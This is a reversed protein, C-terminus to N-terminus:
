KSPNFSVRNRGAKKSRYLLEDAEKILAETGWGTQFQAVGISISVKAKLFEKAAMARIKEGAVAAQAADTQPLIISFEDGGYRCIFETARLNTRFIEALRKLLRDGELHGQTDNYTKFDDVDIMMLSLPSRYRVARRVEEEMKQMFSRHNLLGTLPDTQSLHELEQNKLSLEEELRRRDSIDVAFGHTGTKEGQDSYIHNATILLYDKRGSLLVRTTEFDKVVGLAELEVLFQKRRDPDPFCTEPWSKGLAQSCNQLEFTDAFAKNVYFIKARADAMFIGIKIGEVLNRFIKHSEPNLFNLDKNGALYADM